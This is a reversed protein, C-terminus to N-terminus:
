GRLLLRVVGARTLLGIMPELISSICRGGPQMSLWSGIGLGVAVRDPSDPEIQAQAPPHM